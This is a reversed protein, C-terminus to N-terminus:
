VPQNTPVPGLDVYWQGGVNECANTLIDTTAANQYAAAFGADNAPLGLRRDSNSRCDQHAGQSTCITGLLAVLARTGLVYTDGTRMPGNPLVTTMQQVLAPCSAQQSPLAYDCAAGAKGAAAGDLWGAFAAAPSTHGPAVGVVAAGTSSAGQGSRQSSCAGLGVLLALALAAPLWPPRM